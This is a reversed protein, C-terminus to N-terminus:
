QVQGAPADSGNGEVATRIASCEEVPTKFSSCVIPMLEKKSVVGEYKKEEVIITPYVTVNYRKELMAVSAESSQLDINIPFVLLREGLLKKYYSLIVGQDPCISCKQDSYFYLITVFDLNCLEKTKSAFLWYRLNDLAYARTLDEFEARNFDASVKYAEMRELSDTLTNISRQLSLEFVPCSNTNNTLTNLYLQQFQLSKYNLEQVKTAKEVRAIRENGVLMSMSFGLSFILLAVLGVILYTKFHIPRAM